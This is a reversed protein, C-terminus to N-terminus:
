FIQRENALLGYVIHDVFHDHRWRAQRIVGERVFGLKEPVRRSKINESMCRIEVRNLLLEFFAYDSLARCAKTMLSKGQFKEGLWYGIETNRHKWDIYNFYICGALEGKYWIGAEFGNNAAFKELSHKIHQRADELSYDDTIWFMWEGILRRNDYALEFFEEAHQMELLRLDTEENIELRFM